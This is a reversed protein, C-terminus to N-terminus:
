GRLRRLMWVVAVVIVALVVALPVSREAHLDLLEVRNVDPPHAFDSPPPTRRVSVTPMPPIVPSLAPAAHPISSPASLVALLFLVILLVCALKM